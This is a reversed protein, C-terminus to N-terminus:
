AQNIAPETMQPKLMYVRDFNSWPQNNAIQLLELSAQVHPKIDHFDSWANNHAYARM